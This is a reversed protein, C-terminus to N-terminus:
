RKEALHKQLIEREDMPLHVGLIEQTTEHGKGLLVIIDDKKGIDMAYRIAMGRNELVKCIKKPDAGQLVQRIIDMPPEFRPNDSTLVTIDALRSSIERMAARKGKDRDGGCGFLCILRGKCFSRLTTLIKEMGDPTHAYDIIVTYEAGPMPVVEARGRIGKARGLAAASERLPLGLSVALGLVTLANYVSFMGPIGLEVAAAEARYRATFRICRPELVIDEARLDAEQRVSFTLAEPAARLIRGSWPDDLNLVKARSQAFLKAKTDCYSEMTKHYDLHDRSLNTFAAAAFALGATRGQDLGHSSVEMVAYRCGNKVMESLLRHLEESQPTTRAAPEVPGGLHNEVTGLLGCKEKTVAEIVQKLLWSVSSKGNTGTVAALTLKKAPDEYFCACLASYAARTDEVLVRDDGPIESLIVCAGGERAQPIFSNGDLNTGRLAVYVWNKQVKRSDCTIGAVEVEPAANGQLIRIRQSLLGWRM